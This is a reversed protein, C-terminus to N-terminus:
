SSEYIAYGIPVLESSKEVHIFYVTRGVDPLPFFTVKTVAIVTHHYAPRGPSLRLKQDFEPRMIKSWNLYIDSLSAHLSNAGTEKLEFESRLPPRERIAEFSHDLWGFAKTIHYNQWGDIKTVEFLVEGRSHLEGRTADFRFDSGLLRQAERNLKELYRAKDNVWDKRINLVVVEPELQKLASKVGDDDFFVSMGMRKPFYRTYDRFAPVALFVFAALILVLRIILGNTIERDVKVFGLSFQCKMAQTGFIKPLLALVGFAVGLIVPWILNLFAWLSSDSVNL